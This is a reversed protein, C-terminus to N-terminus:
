IWQGLGLEITELKLNQQVVRALVVLAFHQCPPVVTKIRFPEILDVDPRKRIRIRNQLAARLNRARAHLWPNLMVGDIQHSARARMWENMVARTRASRDRQQKTRFCQSRNTSTLKYRRVIHTVNRKRHQTM